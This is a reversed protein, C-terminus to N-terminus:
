IDDINIPGDDTDLYQATVQSKKSRDLQKQMRSRQSASSVGELRKQESKNLKYHHKNADERVLKDEDSDSKSNDSVVTEVRDNKPKVITNGMKDYEVDQDDIDDYEDEESDYGPMPDAYSGGVNAYQTSVYEEDDVNNANADNADNADDGYDYTFCDEGALEAGVHEQRKIEGCRELEQVQDPFYKHNIDVEINKDDDTNEYIKRYAVLVIDGKFFKLRVVKGRIHGLYQDDTGDASIIQLHCLGNGLNALVKAYDTNSDKLILSKPTCHKKGCKKHNKGGKLNKPM